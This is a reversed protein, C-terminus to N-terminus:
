TKVFRLHLSSLKEKKKKIAATLLPCPWARSGRAINTVIVRYTLKGGTENLPLVGRDESGQQFHKLKSNCAGFHGGIFHNQLGSLPIPFCFPPNNSPVEVSSPLKAWAILVLSPLIVLSPIRQAATM